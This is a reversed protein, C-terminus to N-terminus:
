SVTANAKYTITGSYQSQLLGVPVDLYYFTSFTTNPAIDTLMRQYTSALQLLDSDLSSNVSMNSPGITYSSDAGSVLSTARVWLGDVAVSDDDVSLNYSLDSNGTAPVDQTGPDISGFSISSFSLSFLVIEKLQVMADTTDTESIGEYTNSSANVDIDYASPAGGTANVTWTVNCRQGATLTGCGRENAQETYFPTGSSAPIVTDATASSGNYRVTAATEGCEGESCLLEATVPFTTNPKVITEDPPEYLQASLTGVRNVDLVQGDLTGSDRSTDNVLFTTPFEASTPQTINVLYKAYMTNGAALTGQNGTSWNVTGDTFTGGNYDQDGSINYWIDTDQVTWSSNLGAHYMVDEAQINWNATGENVITFSVRYQREDELQDLSLTSNVGSAELTGGIEKGAATEDTVDYIEIATMNPFSAATTGFTTKATGTATVSLLLTCLVTLAIIREM